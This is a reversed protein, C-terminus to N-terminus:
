DKTVARTMSLANENYWTKMQSLLQLRINHMNRISGSQLKVFFSIIVSLHQTLRATVLIPLFKLHKEFLVPCNQKNMNLRMAESLLVHKFLNVTERSSYKLLFPHSFGTFQLTCVPDRLCQKSKLSPDIM